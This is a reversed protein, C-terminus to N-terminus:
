DSSRSKQKAPCFGPRPGIKPFERCVTPRNEYVTCLRSKKDLLICDDNARQAVVFIGTKQSYAQIKKEKELKSAIAKPSLVMAEEESVWGLRILDSLNVELPLTCCGGWCNDCLGNRYKVWTSPRQAHPGTM